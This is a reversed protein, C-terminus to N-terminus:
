QILEGNIKFKYQKGAIMQVGTFMEGRDPAPNCYYTKGQDHIWGTLMEGRDAAPNLYYWNKNYLVWGQAMAGDAKLYYWHDKYKVWADKKLQGNEYYHWIGNEKKWGTNPVTLTTAVPQPVIGKFWDLSKGGNLCSLDLEGEYGPVRGKDTYQWIDCPFDPKTHPKGDNVGYRPIMVFDFLHAIEAFDWPAYINHAVYAGVRKVGHKRLQDVYAIIGAKRIDPSLKALGVPQGSQTFEAEIDLMIGLSSPDQRQFASDAEVRADAESIFELFAYTLFPIKYKKANAAHNKYQTDPVTTGYQDRLILLDVNKSFTPWDIKSSDQVYSLDVVNSM